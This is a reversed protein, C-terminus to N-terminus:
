KLFCGGGGGGATGSFENPIVIEQSDSGVSVGGTGSTGGSSAGNAVDFSSPGFAATTTTLSVGGTTTGSGSSTSTGGATSSLTITSNDQAIVSGSQNSALVKFIADNSGTFNVDLYSTGTTAKYRAKQSTTTKPQIPNDANIATWTKGGDESYYVVYYQNTDALDDFSVRVQETSIREVKQVLPAARVYFAIESTDTGSTVKVVYRGSVTGVFFTGINASSSITADTTTPKSSFDYTYVNGGNTASIQVTSGSQEIVNFIYDGNSQSLNSPSDVVARIGDKLLTASMSSSNSNLYHKDTGSSVSANITFNTDAGLNVKRGNVTTQQITAYNDQNFTLTSPSFTIYSTQSSGLSVTVNGSPVTTLSIGLNQYNSHTLDSESITILTKDFEIGFKDDDTLPVLVNKGFYGSYNNDSSTSAGFKIISSKHNTYVSDNTNGSVTVTQKTSYNSTTFTLLETSLTTNSLDSINLSLPIQVNETPTGILGVEFTSSDGKESAYSSIQSVTIGPKENDVNTFSLTKVMNYNSDTSSITFTIVFTRDGDLDSDDVITLPVEQLQNYNSTSFTLSSSQVSAETSDSSEVKISVSSTPQTTLKLFLKQSGSDELFRLTGDKIYIYDKDLILVNANSTPQVSVSESFSSSSVSSNSISATLTISGNNTVPFVHGSAIGVGVRYFPQSTSDSINITSPYFTLNDSESASFTVTSTASTTILVDFYVPTEGPIVTKNEGIILASLTEDDANRLSLQTNPKFISYSLDFGDSKKNEKVIANVSYTVLGDSLSDDVGIISITKEARWDTTYFIVSSPYAQAESTDDSSILVEVNGEPKSNLRLSAEANLGTETTLNGGLLKFDLDISDNDVSNMTINTLSFNNYNPDNSSVTFSIELGNTIDGGAVENDPNTFTVSSLTNYSSSTFTVPTLTGLDVKGPDTTSVPTIIVDATPESTLIFSVSGSEGETVSTNNQTVTIGATEGSDENKFPLTESIATTYFSDQSSFVKVTVNYMVNGDVVSDDVGTVTFTQDVNYNTSDFSLNEKSIIGESSDDVIIELIVNGTVVTGLKVSVTSTTQTESTTGSTSSYVIGPIDLDQTLVVVSDVNINSYNSDVSTVKATLLSTQDGDISVPSDNNGTVTITNATSFNTSNFTLVNSSGFYAESNDSLTFTVSVNSGIAPSTLLNVSLTGTTGAETVTLSTASLTVGPTDDDINVMNIENPLLGDYSSDASSMTSFVISFPVNGDVLSDNNGTVTFTQLTQYNSQTFFISTPSITGETLDSSSASLTVLGTPQTFLNVSFTATGGGETVSGSINSINLGAQDNDENVVTLPVINKNNFNLDNSTISPFLISFSIDGDSIADDVGTITVTQAVSYNTNSFTVTNTSLTGETNDSSELIITVDSSPQTTLNISFSATKGSESINNQISSVLFGASEDDENVLGITFFDLGKYVTDVSNIFNGSILFGVDGDTLDDNVGFISVQQKQNYNTSNFSILTNTSQGSFLGETTDLSTLLINVSASPESTLSIEILAADQKETSNSNLINVIKDATENDINNLFVDAPDIISYNGDSSTMQKLIISYPINGDVLTDDAGTIVIKQEGSYNEPTFKLSNKNITGEAVSSSQLPLYVDATPKTNLKVTFSAQGGSETTDGTVDSISIGPKDNDINKMTVSQVNLFQYDPDTSTLDIKIQYTIDGDSVSDDVGTVHVKQPANYNTSNVVIKENVVIGETTDSSSITLVVDQSPPSSAVITFFAENGSESTTTNPESVIISALENDVNKISINKVITNFNVDTSDTVIKVDSLIDGDTISDDIGTVILSQFSQYNDKTFTVSANNVSLETNDSVTITLNVNNTPEKTLRLSLDLTTNNESVVYDQISFVEIGYNEDDINILDVEASVVNNWKTDNSISNLKIKLAQDGDLDSDDVGTIRLVQAVNWNQTSFVLSNFNVSAETLDSSSVEVIVDNAPQKSLKVNFQAEKGGESISGIVNSIVLSEVVITPQVSTGNEINIPDSLPSLGATRLYFRDGVAFEITGASITVQLQGTYDNQATFATNATLENAELGTVSGRVSFRAVGAGGATTCEFTWIQQTSQTTNVTADSTLTLNNVVGTGNGKNNVAFFQSMNSGAVSENNLGAVTKTYYYFGGTLGTLTNDTIISTTLGPIKGTSGILNGGTGYGPSSERFLRITSGGNLDYSEMIISFTGNIAIGAPPNKFSVEPISTNKRLFTVKAPSTDDGNNPLVINVIELGSYSGDNWNNKPEELHNFTTKGFATKDGFVDNADSTNVGSELHMLGDAQVIKALPRSANNQTISGPGGESNSYDDIHQIYLGRPNSFNTSGAEYHIYFYERDNSGPRNYRYVTNPSIEVPFFDLIVAEDPILYNNLDNTQIWNGGSGSTLGPGKTLASLVYKTASAMSDYDGVPTRILENNKSFTATDYLDPANHWDHMSEHFITHTDDVSGVQYGHSLATSQDESQTNIIGASLAQFPSNTMLGVVYDMAMGSAGLNDYDVFEENAEMADEILRVRNFPYDDNQTGNDPSVPNKGFIYNSFGKPPSAGQDILGDLNVDRTRRTESDGRSFNANATDTLSQGDTRWTLFELAAQNGVDRGTHGHLKVAMPGSFSMYTKPASVTAEYVGGVLSDSDPHNEEAFRLDGTSHYLSSPLDRFERHSDYYKGKADPLVNAGTGAFSGGFGSILKGGFAPFSRQINAQFTTPLWTPVTQNTIELPPTTGFASNWWEALTGVNIVDATSRWFTNNSTTVKTVSQKDHWKVLQIKDDFVEVHDDPGDYTGNGVRNLLLDINDDVGNGLGTPFAVNSAITIDKDKDYQVNGTALGANASVWIFNGAVTNAGTLVNDNYTLASGGINYYYLHLLNRNNTNAITAGAVSNLLVDTSIADYQNNMNVDLYAIDSAPEFIGNINKDDYRVVGENASVPNFANSSWTSNDGTTLPIDVNPTFTSTIDMNVFIPEGIDFTFDGDSDYYYPRSLSYFSNNDTLKKLNDNTLTNPTSLIITSSSGRTGYSTSALQSLIFFDFTPNFSSASDGAYFLNGSVNGTSTVAPPISGSSSIDTGNGPYNDMIYRADVPVWAGPPITDDNPNATYDWRVLYDEFPERDKFVGDEAKSHVMEPSRYLNASFEVKSITGNSNEVKFYTRTGVATIIDEFAGNVKKQNANFVGNLGINATATPTGPTSNADYYDWIRDGDLTQTFTRTGASFTWSGVEVMSINDAATNSNATKVTAFLNDSGVVLASVNFDSVMDLINGTVNAGADTKPAYYIGYDSSTSITSTTVNAASTSVHIKFSSSWDGPYLFTLNAGKTATTNGAIVSGVTDITLAGNFNGSTNLDMENVNITRTALLRQLYAPNGMVGDNAVGGFWTSDGGLGSDKREDWVTTQTNGSTFKGDGDWDVFEEGYEDYEKINGTAIGSIEQTDSFPTLETYEDDGDLDKFREGPTYFSDVLCDKSPNYKQKATAGDEYEIIVEGDSYRNYFDGGERLPDPLETNGKITWPIKVYDMVEIDVDFKGYSHHQYAGRFNEEYDIKIEQFTKTLTSAKEGDKPSYVPTILVQRVGEVAYISSFTALFSIITFFKNRM